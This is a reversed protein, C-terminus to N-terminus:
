DNQVEERSIISRKRLNELRTVRRELNNLKESYDANVTCGDAPEVPTGASKNRNCQTSNLLLLFVIISGIALLLCLKVRNQM